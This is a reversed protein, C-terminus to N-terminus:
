HKEAMFSSESKMVLHILEVRSKVGLKQYLNYIHNKVTSRSIYLLSEIEKNRKGQLILEMIERERKSINFQRAVTDLIEGGEMSYTSVEYKEFFRRLWVLPLLNLWLLIPASAYNYIARPLLYSGVLVAYGSLFLYTFGQVTKRRGPSLETHKGSALIVLATIIVASVALSLGLNTSAIWRASDTEAYQRWGIVYSAGFVLIALGFMRNVLWSPEKDQLGLAVKTFTYARGVGAVFIALSILAMFLNATQKDGGFLNTWLYRTILSVLVALNFFVVYHLLSKLFPRRTIRYM